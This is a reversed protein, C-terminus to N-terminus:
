GPSGHVLVGNLVLGLLHSVLAEADLTPSVPSVVAHFMVAGRLTDLIAAGDADPRVVNEAIGREIVAVYHARIPAIFREEAVQQLQPDAVMEGILGPLGRRYEPRFQHEVMDSVLAAFTEVFPKPAAVSGDTDGGAQFLVEQALAAKSGWWQYILPRGVKARRAVASLTLAEYGVEALLDATAKLVARHRSPDRPRGRTASAQTEAVM